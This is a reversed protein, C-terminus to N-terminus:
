RLFEALDPINSALNPLPQMIATPRKPTYGPPYAGRLVKAELLERPSGKVPPGLAGPVAPDSAHCAICNAMYAQRGREAPTDTGQACAALLIAAAGGAVRAVWRM